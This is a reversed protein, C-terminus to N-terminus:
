SQDRKGQSRPGGGRGSRKGPGGVHAASVPGRGRTTHATPHPATRRLPLASTVIRVFARTTGVLTIIMLPAGLVVVAHDLFPTSLTAGNGLPVLLTVTYYCGLPLAARQVEQGIWRTANALM